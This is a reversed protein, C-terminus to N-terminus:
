GSCCRPGQVTFMARSRRVTTCMAGCVRATDFDTGTAELVGLEGRVLGRKTMGQPQNEGHGGKETGLPHM